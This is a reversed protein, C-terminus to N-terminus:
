AAEQATRRICSNHAFRISSYTDDVIVQGLPLVDPADLAGIHGAPAYAAENIHNSGPFWDRRLGYIYHGGTRSPILYCLPKM